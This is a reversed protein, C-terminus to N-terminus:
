AKLFDDVSTFDTQDVPIGTQPAVNPQQVSQVPQQNVVQQGAFQGQPAVQPIPQAAQANQNNGQAPGCFDFSSVSVMPQSMQMQKGDATLVPQGNADVIPKNNINLSGQLVVESGKHLYQAMTEARKGLVSFPIYNTKGDQTDADVAITGMAWTYTEGKQSTRQGTVIDRVLRGHLVVLNKM